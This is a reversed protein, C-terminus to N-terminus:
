FSGDLQLVQLWSYRNFGAEDVFWVELEPAAATACTQISRLEAFM